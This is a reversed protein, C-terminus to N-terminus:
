RALSPPVTVVRDLVAGKFQEPLGGQPPTRGTVRLMTIRPPTIDGRDFSFSGLIGNTVKTARLQQLVSGRTGDSRAIADLVVEAAQAGPMVYATPTVQAGFDRAFRRGAPTTGRETPPRDTTSLYLGRAAPGIEDLVNSVPVFIDTVMIRVRRGLGARLANLLEAGNQPPFGVLLVAQVRSRAMRAVLADYSKAGPDYPLSAGASMGLRRAARTFPDAVIGKWGDDDTPYLAQVRKLGLRKAEMAHATGQVDERAVVRFFNRQGTPYFVGPQGRGEALPGGRTLGPGTNSPSVMALPGGPARNVIPIEAEACFSSYTGLVAVLPEANAYSNANAACTRFEFGGTQETAVDCSQYGVTHEGARFGHREVVFRIANAIGRPDASLAGQLPLDSAILVDPKRGGSAVEGCAPNTLAGKTTAGAVSVWAGGTGAALAQPTGTSTRSTVSNTRPDVRSVRGDIYNGTWVARAGFAAFTVGVGLDISRTVPDRGPEVRWLLGQERSTAWVSGAGVTIGWLTSEGARITQSVRNTRQDIRMVSSDNDLSLFWVGEDGAAITWAPFEPEIRAVVKGNKPDIRSVSGDPNIAWVAGAGVALRPLGAVPLVEEAAGPLKVTRTVRGSGPDIRSVSLMINLEEASGANGVWLAGEGAAIESPVGGPKFTKVVEKTDPDIRSVTRDRTGLVWVAGEGVAVNGPISASKTLSAVGGDSDLAAVGNGLPAGEDDGGGTLAVVGAALSVALLIVGAIMIARRRRVLVPPAFASRVPAAVGLAGSAADMLDACSGYREEREKALAKQVVPDLAAHGRLPAPQEQMHAWMTEAETERHFPATGGLCQYLVCALSYVDTRADVPDGRIQEPALYDLTGVVRGTDTSEGGLQKTIGFDTLYVHGGEDLLINAPKVDRHVLARRHAADLAAAVQTLIAVAREPSLKRERKLLTKLDEGEVYRMALYLQGDREGAEYIPIVNPHDLSAALRPERLFRERFHKDEALEPAILKLAVPRELSLDTAQYVVGMGGRGILSEVRYGGFTAGPELATTM